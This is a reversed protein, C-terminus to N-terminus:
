RIGLPDNQNSAGAAGNGQRVKVDALKSAALLKQNIIDQAGQWTSASILSRPIKLSALSSELIDRTAESGPRTNGAVVAQLIAKDNQIARAALANEIGSQIKPNNQNVTLDYILKPSYGGIINGEYPGLAQNSWAGISQLEAARADRQQAQSLSAETAPYSPTPWKSPDAGYGKSVALDTLTKGQAFQQAAVQPDFGMARAYALNMNKQTQPLSDWGKATYKQTTQNAANVFAEPNITLNNGMGNNNVNQITRNLNPQPLPQPPNSASPPANGYTVTPLRPNTVPPNPSPNTSGYDNAGTSNYANSFSSNLLPAFRPDKMVVAKATDPLSQFWRQFQMLPMQARMMAAGRLYQGMAIDPYFQAQANKLAIDSQDMAPMFQNQIQMQQNQSNMLQQRLAETGFGMGAQIGSLVPNNQQFSLVPTSVPYVPM